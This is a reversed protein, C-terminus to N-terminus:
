DASYERYTVSLSDNGHSLPSHAQTCSLCCPHLFTILTLLIVTVANMHSCSTLVCILIPFKRDTPIKPVGVNPLLRACDKECASLSLSLGPKKRCTRKDTQLKNKHSHRLFAHKAGEKLRKKKLCIIIFLGKLNGCDVASM